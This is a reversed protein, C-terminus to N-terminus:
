TCHQRVLEIQAAYGWAAQEERELAARYAAYALSRAPCEAKSWREYALWVTRSEERWAVYRELLGDLTHQQWYPTGSSGESSTWGRASV